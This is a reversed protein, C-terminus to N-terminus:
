RLAVSRPRNEGRLDRRMAAAPDDTNALAWMLKVKAVAPLTEGAEVVGAALLDRGNAYV